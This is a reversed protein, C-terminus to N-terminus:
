SWAQGTRSVQRRLVFRSASRTAGFSATSLPGTRCHRETTLSEHAIAVGPPTRVKVDFEIYDDLVMGSPFEIGIASWAAKPQMGLSQREVLEYARVAEACDGCLLVHEKIGYRNRLSKAASTTLPSSCDAKPGLPEAMLRAPEIAWLYRQVDVRGAEQLAEIARWEDSPHVTPLASWDADRGNTGTQRDRSGFFLQRVSAVGSNAKMLKWWAVRRIEPPSFRVAAAGREEHKQFTVTVGQTGSSLVAEHWSEYLDNISLLKHRLVHQRRSLERALLDRRGRRQGLQWELIWM